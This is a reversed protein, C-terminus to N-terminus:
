QILEKLKEFENAEETFYEVLDKADGQVFKHTKRRIQYEYISKYIIGIKYLKQKLTKSLKTETILLNASALYSYFEEPTLSVQIINRENSILSLKMDLILGILKTFNIDFHLEYNEGLINILKVFSKPDIITFERRLYLIKFLEYVLSEEIQNQYEFNL